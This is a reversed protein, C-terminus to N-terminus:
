ERGLALHTAQEESPILSREFRVNDFVRDSRLSDFCRGYFNRLILRAFAWPTMPGSVPIRCRPYQGLTLHSFSHVFPVFAAESADYDFRLVVPMHFESVVHGWISDQLYSLVDSDFPRLDPAPYFALRHKAVKGLRVKYMFQLLGGDPLLVHFMERQVMASYLQSYPQGRLVSSIDIEDHFGIDGTFKNSSSVSPMTFRDAAGHEVLLHIISQISHELDGILAM